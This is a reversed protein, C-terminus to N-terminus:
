KIGTKRTFNLAWRFFFHAVCWKSFHQASRVCKYEKKEPACHGSFPSSQRAGNNQLHELITKEL